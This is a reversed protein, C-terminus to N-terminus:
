WTEGISFGSVVKEDHVLVYAIVLGKDPAGQILSFFVNKCSVAEM